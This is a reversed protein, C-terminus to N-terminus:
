FTLHPFAKLLPVNFLPEATRREDAIGEHKKIWTTEGSFYLIHCIRTVWDMMVM